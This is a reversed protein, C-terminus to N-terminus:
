KLQGLLYEIAAIIQDPDCEKKSVANETLPDGTNAIAVLWPVTHGAYQQFTEQAAGFRTAPWPMRMTRMHLGMNFEDRDCSVWILEFQTPYQKKLRQYAEILKPTFRRSELSLMSSYYVAYIRADPMAVAPDLARIQDGELHVLNGNLSRRFNDTKEKFAAISADRKMRAAVAARDQEAAQAIRQAAAAQRQQEALAENPPLLIEPSNLSRLLADSAGGQKLNEEAEGAIRVSVRRQRAEKLIEAEPTGRRVLFEIEKLTLPAAALGATLLLTCLITRAFM